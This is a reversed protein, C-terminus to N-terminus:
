VKNILTNYWLFFTNKDNITTEYMIMIHWLSFTHLIVCFFNPMTLIGCKM